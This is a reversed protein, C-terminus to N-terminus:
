SSLIYRTYFPSFITRQTIYTSSSTTHRTAFHELPLADLSSHEPVHSTPPYSTRVIPQSSSLTINTSSITPLYLTSLPNTHHQPSCLSNPRLAVLTALRGLVPKFDLNEYLAVLGTGGGSQTGDGSAPTGLLAGTCGATISVAPLALAIIDYGSGCGYCDRRLSRPLNQSDPKPQLRARLQYTLSKLERFMSFDLAAMVSHDTEPTPPRADLWLQLKGKSQTQIEAHYDRGNQIGFYVITATPYRLKCQTECYLSTMTPSNYLPGTTDLSGWTADVAAFCGLANVASPDFDYALNDM